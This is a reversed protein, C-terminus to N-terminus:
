TPRQWPPAYQSYGVGPPLQPPLPGGYMGPTYALPGAGSAMPMAAAHPLGGLYQPSGPAVAGAVGVPAMAAGPPAAGQVQDARQWPPVPLGTGYQEPTPGPAPGAPSPPPPPTGGPLWQNRDLMSQLDMQPPPAQVSANALDQIPQDLSPGKFTAWGSGLQPPATTQGPMKINLNSQILNEFAQGYGPGARYPLTGQLAQAASAINARHQEVAKQGEDYALAQQQAELASVQPQVQQDWWDLFRQSQQDKPISADAAIKAKMQAAQTQIQSVRQALDGRTTPAKPGQYNPNPEVIQQGTTPDRRVLFQQDTPTTVAEPKALEAKIKAAQAADLQGAAQAREVDSTTKIDLAKIQARTLDTEAGIKGVEAKSRAIAAANAEADQKAKDDARRNEEVWKARNLALTGESVGTDRRLRDETAVQEDTLFGKGAAENRLLENRKIEDIQAKIAKARDEDPNSPAGQQPPVVQRYQGPNNPDPEWTGYQSGSVATSTTPKPPTYNQNPYFEYAGKGGDDRVADPNWRAIFRQTAPASVTPDGGKGLGAQFSAIAQGIQDPTADKPKQDWPLTIEAM